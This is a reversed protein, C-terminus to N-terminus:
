SLYEWEFADSQDKEANQAKKISCKSMHTIIANISVSYRHLFEWLTNCTINMQTSEIPPKPKNDREDRGGKIEGAQNFILRNKNNKLKELGKPQPTM